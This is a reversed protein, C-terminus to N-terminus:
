PNAADLDTLTAVNGEASAVAAELATTDVSPPLNAIADKLAQIDAALGDHAKAANASMTDVRTTLADIGAQNTMVVGLINELLERITTQGSTVSNELSALRKELKDNKDQMAMLISNTTKHESRLYNLERLIAKNDVVTFEGSDQPKPKKLQEESPRGGKM